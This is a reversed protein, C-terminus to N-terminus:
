SFVSNIASAGAKTGAAMNFTSSAIGGIAQFKQQRAQSDAIRSQVVSQNNINTVQQSTSATNGAVGQALSNSVALNASSGATGQSAGQAEIESQEIRLRRLNDRRSRAAEATNSAQQQASLEKQHDAADGAEQASKVAAGAGVVAAVAVVAQIAM